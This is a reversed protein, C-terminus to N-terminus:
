PYSDMLRCVYLLPPFNKLPFLCHDLNIKFGGYCNGGYLKWRLTDDLIIVVGSLVFWCCCFFANIQGGIFTLPLASYDWIGLHHEINWYYGSIAECLTTILMGVICQLIFDTRYDFLINILGITVGICGALVYMRWDTIQHKYISEIIFYISGYTFFLTLYKAIFVFLGTFLTTIKKM